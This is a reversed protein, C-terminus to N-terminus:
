KMSGVNLSEVIAISISVEDDSESDSPLSPIADYSNSEEALEEEIDGFGEDIQTVLDEESAPMFTAGMQAYLYEVGFLEGTYVASPQFNPLVKKGTIISSLENVQIYILTLAVPM